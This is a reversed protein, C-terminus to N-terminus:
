NTNENQLEKIRKEATEQRIKFDAYWNEEEKRLTQIVNYAIILKNDQNTELCDNCYGGDGSGSFHVGHALSTMNVEGCNFCADKGCILCEHYVHEDTECWDCVKLEKTILKKM